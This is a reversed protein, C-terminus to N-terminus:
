AASLVKWSSRRPPTACEGVFLLTDQCHAPDALRRGSGRVVEELLPTLRVVIGVTVDLSIACTTEPLNPEGDFLGHCGHYGQTQNHRQGIRVRAEWLWAGGVEEM